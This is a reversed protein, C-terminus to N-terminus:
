TISLRVSPKDVMVGGPTRRDGSRYARVVPEKTAHRDFCRVAECLYTALQERGPGHAIVGLEYREPRVQPVQRLTLYALSDENWVAPMGTGLVWGVLGQEAAEQTARLRGYPAVAGALWVELRPLVGGAAGLEVGTWQEHKPGTFATVLSKEDAVQDEDVTLRVERGALQVVRPAHASSGQMAVFGSVILADSRLHAEERGFAITRSMGRFRLPVVLRGDAALQDCWAVPVDAAGVTVLIRDFGRTPAGPLPQAGDAQRVRVRGYGAQDLLTRARETIDPDIDTSTVLSQDQTLEALLAANCGGSGIELVTMGPAVQAAELMRAHLWPASLSSVPRGAANHKTFIAEPAGYVEGASVEPAFAHRPVVRFAAEVEPSCIAGRARLDTVMRERLDAHALVGVGTKPM